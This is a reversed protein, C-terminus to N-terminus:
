EQYPKEASAVLGKLRYTLKGEADPAEIKAYNEVLAAVLAKVM